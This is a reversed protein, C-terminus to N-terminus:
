DDFKFFKYIPVDLAKSIKFLLFLSPAKKMNPAEISSIHTESIDVLEALNDQTLGKLRRYYAIKLGLQLILDNYNKM